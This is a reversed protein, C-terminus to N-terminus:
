IFRLRRVNRVIKKEKSPSMMTRVTAPATSEFRANFFNLLVKLADPILARDNRTSRIARDIVISSKSHRFNDFVSESDEECLEVASEEDNLTLRERIRAESM